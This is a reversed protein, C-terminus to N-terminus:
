SARFVAQRGMETTAEVLHQLREPTADAVSSRILDDVGSM